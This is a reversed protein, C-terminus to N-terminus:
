RPPRNLCPSCHPFRRAPHPVKHLPRNQLLRPFGPALRRLPRNVPEDLFDLVKPIWLRQDLSSPRAHRRRDVHPFKDRPTLLPCRSFCLELLQMRRVNLFLARCILPSPILNDFIMAYREFVSFTPQIIKNHVNNGSRLIDPIDYQVFLPFRHRPVLGIRHRHPALQVPPDYFIPYKPIHPPNNGAFKNTVDAGNQALQPLKLRHRFLVSFYLHLLADFLQKTIM